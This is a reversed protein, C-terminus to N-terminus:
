WLMECFSPPCLLNRHVPLYQLNRKAPKNSSWLYISADEFSLKTFIKLIWYCCEGQFPIEVAKCFRQNWLNVITWSHPTLFPLAKQPDKETANKQFYSAHESVSHKYFRTIVTYIYMYVYMNKRYVM